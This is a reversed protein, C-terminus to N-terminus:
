WVDRTTPTTHYRALYDNVCRAVDGEERWEWRQKHVHSVFM